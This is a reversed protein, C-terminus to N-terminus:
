RRRWGAAGGDVFVLVVCVTLALALPLAIPLIGGISELTLQATEDSFAM